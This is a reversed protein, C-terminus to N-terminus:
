ISKLDTVLIIESSISSIVNSFFSFLFSPFFSFFFFLPYKRVSWFPKISVRSGCDWCVFGPLGDIVAASHCETCKLRIQVKKIFTVKGVISWYARNDKRTSMLRSITSRPSPNIYGATFLHHSIVKFSCARISSNINEEFIIICKSKEFYRTMVFFM